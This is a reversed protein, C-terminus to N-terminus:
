KEKPEKEEAAKDYDDILSLLVARDAMYVKKSAKDAKNILKSNAKLLRGLLSRVQPHAATKALTYVSAGSALAAAIWAQDYLISGISTLAATSALMTAGFPSMGTLEQTEKLTRGIATKATKEVKEEIRGM